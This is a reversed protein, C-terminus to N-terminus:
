GGPAGHLARGGRMRRDGDAVGVRGLNQRLAPDAPPRVGDGAGSPILVPRDPYIRAVVAVALREPDDVPALEIEASRSFVKAAGVREGRGAGAGDAAPEGDAEVQM